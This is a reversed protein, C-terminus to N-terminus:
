NIIEIQVDFRGLRYAEETSNVLLDARGIGIDGGRDLVIADVKEGNSYHIRVKTYFPINSPMAVIRYGQYYITNSIDYGTATVGGYPHCTPCYASYHTLNYNSKYGSGRSVVKPEEKKKAETLAKQKALEEQKRKEEALKKQKELEELREKEAKERAIRDLELAKRKQELRKEQQEKKFESVVEFSDIFDIEDGIKKMTLSSNEKEEEEKEKNNGRKELQNVIFITLSAMLIISFTSVGVKLIRKSM